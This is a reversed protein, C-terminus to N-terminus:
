HDNMGLLALTHQNIAMRIVDCNRDNLRTATKHTSLFTKIEQNTRPLGHKYICHMGRDVAGQFLYILDFFSHLYLMCICNGKSSEDCILQRLTYRHDYEVKMQLQGTHTFFAIFNALSEDSGKVFV